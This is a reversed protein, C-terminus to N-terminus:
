EDSQEDMRFGKLEVNRFELTFESDVQAEEGPMGSAANPTAKKVFDTQVIWGTWAGALGLVMFLMTISLKAFTSPSPDVVPDAAVAPTPNPAPKPETEPKVEASESQPPDAPEPTAAPTDNM